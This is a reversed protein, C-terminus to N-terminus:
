LSIFSIHRLVNKKNKKRSGVSVLYYCRNNDSNLLPSLVFVELLIKRFKNYHLLIDTNPLCFAIFM